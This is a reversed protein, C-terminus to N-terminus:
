TPDKKNLETYGWYSSGTGASNKWGRKNLERGIFRNMLPDSLFPIIVEYALNGARIDTIINAGDATGMSIASVGDEFSTCRFVFAAPGRQILRTDKFASGGTRIITMEYATCISRFYIVPIKSIIRRILLCFIDPGM